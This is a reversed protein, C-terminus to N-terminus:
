WALSGTLATELTMTRSMVRISRSPHAVHGTFGRPCRDLAAPLLRSVIMVGSWMGNPYLSLESGELGHDIVSDQLNL